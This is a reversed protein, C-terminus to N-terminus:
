ASPGVPPPAKRAIFFPLVYFRGPYGLAIKKANLLAVFRDKDADSFHQFYVKGAGPAGVVYAKYNKDTPEVTSGAEVLRFFEAPEMGGCYSCTKDSRWGDTAASGFQVGPNEDRRPCGGPMPALTMEDVM